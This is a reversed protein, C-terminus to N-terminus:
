PNALHAKALSIKMHKRMCLPSTNGISLLQKFKEQDLEIVLMEAISGVIKKDCQSM